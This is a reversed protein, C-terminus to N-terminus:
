KSEREVQSPEVNRADNNQKNQKTSMKVDPFNTPSGTSQNNESEMATDSNVQIEVLNVTPEFQSKTQTEHISHQADVQKAIKSPIGSVLHQHGPSLQDRKLASSTGEWRAGNGCGSDPLPDAEPPPSTDKDKQEVSSHHTAEFWDKFVILPFTKQQGREFFQQLEPNKKLNVIDMTNFCLNKKLGKKHQLEKEIRDMEGDKLKRKLENM